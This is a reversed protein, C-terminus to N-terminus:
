RTIGVLILIGAFVAMIGGVIWEARAALEPRRAGWASAIIGGFILVLAFDQM